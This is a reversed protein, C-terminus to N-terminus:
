RSVPPRWGAGSDRCAGARPARVWALGDILSDEPASLVKGLVAAEGHMSAAMDTTTYPHYSVLLIRSVRM